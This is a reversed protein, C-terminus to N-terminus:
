LPKEEQAQAAQEAAERLEALGTILDAAQTLFLAYREDTGTHQGRRARRLVYDQAYSAFDELNGQREALWAALEAPTMARLPKRPPPQDPQRLQKM